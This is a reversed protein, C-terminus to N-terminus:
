DNPEFDDCAPSSEYCENGENKGGCEEGTFWVCDGCSTPEEDSEM